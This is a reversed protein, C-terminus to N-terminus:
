DVRYLFCVEEDEQPYFLYKELVPEGLPKRRSIASAKLGRIEVGGSKILEIEKYVNVQMESHFFFVNFMMM